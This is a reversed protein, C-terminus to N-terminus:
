KLLMAFLPSWRTLVWAYAEDQARALHDAFAEPTSERAVQFDEYRLDGRRMLGLFEDRDLDQISETTEADWLSDGMVARYRDILRAGWAGDIPVYESMAGFRDGAVWDAFREPSLERAKQFDEFTFSGNRRMQALFGERDLAKIAQITEFNWAYGKAARRYQALFRQGWTAESPAADSPVQQTRAQM